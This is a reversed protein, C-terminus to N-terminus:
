PGRPGGQASRGGGPTPAQGGGAVPSPQPTPPPQVQDKRIELLHKLIASQSERAFSRTDEQHASEHGATQAAAKAKIQELEQQHQQQMM